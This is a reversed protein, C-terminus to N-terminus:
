KKGRLKSDFLIPGITGWNSPKTMEIRLRMDRATERIDVYGSGNKTRPPSYVDPTYGNRDNTKAMRFQIATADDKIDPLIKNVTFWNEGGNPNLNMSEIWPMEAGEYLLGAEHKFVDTGDSMIPHDDNPYTFGCVRGLKGKSWVSNRYDFIAVLDNTMYPADKSAFFWWVEGHVANHVCAGMFRTFYVSRNDEIFDWIDCPIVKASAGDFLWWGDIACWVIGLPTECISAPSVPLSVKGMERYTYTYPLGSWEIIYGMPGTFMLIGHESIQHTIIPSTPSVDYFGARSLLDPFDWDEDDEEDSWAFKYPNTAGFIMAHREPTILFSRGPPANPVATLLTGPPDSPSWGLYRTDGSTMVRLKEGWNDISFMPTFYGLRSLGPRPTGYTSLSYADDGYGAQAPSPPALGGVPTIDTITGAIDVYVHEECLYATFIEGDNATWRHMKRLKSAFASTVQKEWGMIPRLTVGNEWRILHCDRWNIIKSNKSALNTVGPPFQLPIM